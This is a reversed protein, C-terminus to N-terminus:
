LKNLYERDSEHKKAAHIIRAVFSAAIPLVVFAINTNYNDILSSQLRIASFKGTVPGSEFLDLAFGCSLALGRLAHMTPSLREVTVLSLYAVQFITILELAIIMRTFFGIIFLLLAIASLALAM